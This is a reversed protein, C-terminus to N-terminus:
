LTAVVALIAAAASIRKLRRRWTARYLSVPPVVDLGDEIADWLGAPEEVEFDSMRDHIDKLWQDKM